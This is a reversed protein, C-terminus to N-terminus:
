MAQRLKLIGKVNYAFYCSMIFIAHEALCECNRRNSTSLTVIFCKRRRFTNYSSVFTTLTNKRLTQIKYDLVPEGGKDM